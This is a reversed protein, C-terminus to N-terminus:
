YNPPHEARPQMDIAGGGWQDLPISPDIGTPARRLEINAWRTQSGLAHKCAHEGCTKRLAYRAPGDRAMPKIASCCIPCLNPTFDPHNYFRM